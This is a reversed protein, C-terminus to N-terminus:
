NKPEMPPRITFSANRSEACEISIEPADEIIIPIGLEKCLDSKKTNPYSNNSWKNTFYVESFKQPFYRNLWALTEKEVDSPRSTIISLDHNRVLISVVEKSGRIPQLSRFYKTEYFNYARKIIEEKTCNFLKWWAYEVIQKRKFDTQYTTNYFRLFSDTYDVLVEDLDIAIKM